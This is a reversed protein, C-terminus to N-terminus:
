DQTSRQFLKDSSPVLEVNRVANGKVACAALVIACNGPAKSFNRFAVMLKMM